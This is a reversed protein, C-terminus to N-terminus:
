GTKIFSLLAKFVCINVDAGIRDEETAKLM